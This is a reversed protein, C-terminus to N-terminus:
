GGIVQYFDEYTNDLHGGSDYEGVTQHYCHTYYGSDYTFQVEYTDSYVHVEDVSGGLGGQNNIISICANM